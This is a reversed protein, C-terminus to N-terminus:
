HKRPTSSQGTQIASFLVFQRSLANLLAKAKAEDAAKKKQINAEQEALRVDMIAKTDGSFSAFPAFVSAFDKANTVAQAAADFKQRFQLLEDASFSDSGTASYRAEIEQILKRERAVLATNAGFAADLRGRFSALWEHFRHLHYHM